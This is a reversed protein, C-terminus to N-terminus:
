SEEKPRVSKFLIGSIVILVVGGLFGLVGSGIAATGLTTFGVLFILLAWGSVSTTGM